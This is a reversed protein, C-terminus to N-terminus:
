RARRLQVVPALQPKRKPAKSRTAEDPVVFGAQRCVAAMVEFQKRTNLDSQARMAKVDARLANVQAELEAIRDAAASM